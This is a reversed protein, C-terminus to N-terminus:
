AMACAHIGQIRDSLRCQGHLWGPQTPDAKSASADCLFIAAAIGPSVEKGRGDLAVGPRVKVQMFENARGALHFALRFSGTDGWFSRRPLLLGELAGSGPM